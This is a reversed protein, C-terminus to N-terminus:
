KEYSNDQKKEKGIIKWPLVIRALSSPANRNQRSQKVARVPPEGQCFCCDATRNSEVRGTGTRRQVNGNRPVRRVYVRHFYSMDSVNRNLNPNTLLSLTKTAATTGEMLLPRYWKSFAQSIIYVQTNCVGGWCHHVLTHFLVMTGPIM